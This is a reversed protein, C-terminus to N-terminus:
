KKIKLIQYLKMTNQSLILIYRRDFRGLLVEHSGPIFRPRMWELGTGMKKRHADATAAKSQEDRGDVSGGMM